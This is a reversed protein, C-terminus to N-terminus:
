VAVYLPPPPVKFVLAAGSMQGVEGTDERREGRRETHGRAQDQAQVERGQVGRSPLETGRLQSEGCM